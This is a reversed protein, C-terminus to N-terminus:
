LFTVYARALDFATSSDSVPGGLAVVLHLQSESAMGAASAAVVYNALAETEDIVDQPVARKYSVESPPAADTLSRAGLLNGLNVVSASDTLFQVVGGWLVGLSLEAWSVVGAFTGFKPHRM